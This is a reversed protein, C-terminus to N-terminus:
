IFAGISLLLMFLIMFLNITIFARKFNFEYQMNFTLRTFSIVLWINLIFLAILFVVSTIIHFLPFMMTTVSTAIIWVYTILKLNEKRIVSYISPYGAAEYEKSYKILLLWFHPIQWIFLFFGIIIIKSDFVYGGAATWGILAPVAGTLSGPVVALSTIRKLYTYIFNYWIINFLGLLLTIVGFSFWLISLGSIVLLLSIIFANQPSIKGTPLPRKQTRQMKADYEREQFENLASAGGALIFVGLVLHILHIDISATYVIYGTIATFCVALSVKYKMLAPITKLLLLMQKISM